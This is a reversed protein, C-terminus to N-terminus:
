MGREAYMKRVGLRKDMTPTIAGVLTGTDLVMKMNSMAEKLSTIDDSLNGIANVVDGNDMTANLLANQSTWQQNQLNSFSGSAQYARTRSLMNDIAKSGNQINSLDLVPKIVPDDIGSALADSATALTKRMRDVMKSSTKDVSASSNSMGNNAGESIGEGAERARNKIDNIKEIVTDGFRKISDFLNSQADSSEIGDRIGEVLAKGVEVTKTSIGFSIGLETDFWMLIKRAVEKITTELLYLLSEIGDIFGLISWRASAFTEDSPSHIGLAANFNDLFSHAFAIGEDRM